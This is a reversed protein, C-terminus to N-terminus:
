DDNLITGIGRNKTFLGNISLGYLDLYFTENAERKNDGKVEITITKTTEGPAFTLTGTKAVYDNDGTTATGNVTAFSMTVPQDYAVSLTVTFTFLTTKNKRGEYKTVDSISIRPENDVITGVGQGDAIGANVPASLNVVFTENSEPLRDGTVAVSFTRSTQGAPIILNGSTTTYDSATASGNATAYHVTVDVDSLASLTVTFTANVSGTNGETVTADDISILPEDDLITGIGQANGITANNPASLNVVFTEDLEWVRDGIVAVAFTSSSQGAPIIVEGFTNEYDSGATATGNATAYHVMVDVNYVFSLSVTFTASRTGTNGETVTADGISVTPPPPPPWSQDNILVAVSNLSSDMVAVDPFGDGNFNGVAVRAAYTGADLVHTTPGAFVGNGFGLLVNVQGTYFGSYGTYYDGTRTYFDSSAVLDLKGDANIDGLVVSTTENGVAYNKAAGFGGSGNGLLVSVDYGARNAVVLDIKLDGNVDGAVVSSPGSGTYSDAISSFGGAGNSLLVSVTSSATNAIALDDKNDANFQGTVVSDPYLGSLPTAVAANFGGSGNSILVNVYANEVQRYYTFGYYGTYSELFSTVGTVALDLLGDGNFDGTAVSHPSQALPTVGPYGSPFQAPLVISNPLAFNGAGDGRLISVDGANATILDLKSDGSVDGVVVSRPGTGTAFDTKAGFGGLGNGLLVSVSNSAYNAVALDTGGGNFDSTVVAQPNTGVAYNIPGLFAPVIRDDLNLVSLKCVAEKRRSRSLTPTARRNPQTRTWANLWARFTM